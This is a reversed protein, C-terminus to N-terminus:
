RAAGPVTFDFVSSDFANYGEYDLLEYLRARTQMQPVEGALTGDAVLSDLGREIAGMAIRLLSVPYIVLNIGVDALQRTTFLESKGFETMNALVPVEVAARIAAFEDLSAMAEPFIADAGADVLQKARRVAADLGEIARIDTRAMIVLNPDRRADVAARIRKLATDDDVVQKGDLHGCRKPNVQDEIHLGSVGADELLQVTRAVNMPEGFGTDADVLTPLDTMRGIQAARTAVETLTTLGIDPLGLEASLVAGSIYVGEFGKEEILRASLPTFAGPMRVLSGGTLAERFRRRKDAPTVTSHLM